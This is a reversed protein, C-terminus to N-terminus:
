CQRTGRSDLKSHIKTRKRNLIAIKSKTPVRHINLYPQLGVRILLWILQVGSLTLLFVMSLIFWLLHLSFGCLIMCSYMNHDVVWCCETKGSFFSFFHMADWNSNLEQKMAKCLKGHRVSRRIIHSLLHQTHIDHCMPPISRHRLLCYRNTWGEYHGGGFVCGFMIM